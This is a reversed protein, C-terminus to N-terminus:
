EKFEVYCDLNEFAILVQEFFEKDEELVEAYTHFLLTELSVLWETAMLSGKLNEEILFYITEKAHPVTEEHDMLTIFSQQISLKKYDVDQGYTKSVSSLLALTSALTLIVYCWSKIIEKTKM